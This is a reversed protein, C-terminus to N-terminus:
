YLIILIYTGKSINMIRTRIPKIQLSNYHLTESISHKLTQSLSAEEEAAVSPVTRIGWGVWLFASVFLPLNNTSFCGKRRDVM